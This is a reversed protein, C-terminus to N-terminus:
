RGVVWFHEGRGGRTQKDAEGMCEGYESSTSCQRLNAVARVYAAGLYSEYTTSEPLKALCKTDDRFLLDKTESHFLCFKGSCDNGNGGFM